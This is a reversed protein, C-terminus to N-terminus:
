NALSALLVRVAKARYIDLFVWFTNARTANWGVNAGRSGRDELVGIFYDKDAGQNDVAVNNGSNYRVSLQHKSYRILFQASAHQKSM